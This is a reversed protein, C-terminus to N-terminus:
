YGLKVGAFIGTGPILYSNTWWAGEANTLNRVDCYVTLNEWLEREIGCDITMFGDETDNTGATTYHEGVLNLGASVIWKEMGTWHAEILADYTPVYPVEGALNWSASNSSFSGDISWVSRRYCMGFEVDNRDVDAGAVLAFFDGTKTFVLANEATSVDVGADLTLRESVRWELESELVVPRNEFLLPTLGALGNIAYIDGHSYGHVEPAYRAKLSLSRALAWDFKAEPYFKTESDMNPMASMYLRGGFGISMSNFLLMVADAGVTMMSGDNDAFSYSDYALETNVTMDHLDRTASLLGEINLESEDYIIEDDTYSGSTLNLAAKTEWSAVPHRLTAGLNFRGVSRDRGRFREGGLDDGESGFGAVAMLRSDGTGFYGLMEVDHMSPAANSITNEKAMRSELSLSAAMKGADYSARGRIDEITRSGFFADVRGYGGVYLDSTDARWLREDNGILGQSTEISRDEDPLPMVMVVFGVTSQRDGIIDFSRTDKGVIRYEELELDNEQAPAVGGAAFVAIVALTLMLIYTLESKTKLM